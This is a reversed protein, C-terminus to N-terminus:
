NNPIQIKSWGSELVVPRAIHNFDITRTVFIKMKQKFESALRTSEVMAIRVEAEIDPPTQQLQNQIYQAYIQNILQQNAGSPISVIPPGQLYQSGNQSTFFETVLDFPRNTELYINLSKHINWMIVEEEDTAEVVKLGYEKAEKRYLAHGHSFFSKNLKRAIEKVKTKEESSNMHTFLLKEGIQDSLSSARMALGLALPEVNESLIEFVKKIYKQETLGIEKKIFKFLSLVDEYAFNKDKGDKNKVFIQPDIPGLCGYRGMVIKNAGLALLTAASFAINPILVNVKKFRARLLSIVRWAVLSDGGSSEILLDVEDKDEPIVQIQDILEELMDSAMLGSAGIRSSTIYVILPNGRLEELSKYLEIREEIEGM